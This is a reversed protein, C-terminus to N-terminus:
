SSYESYVNPKLLLLLLLLYCSTHKAFKFILSNFMSKQLTTIIMCSM